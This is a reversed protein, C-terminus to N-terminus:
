KRRSGKRKRSGKKKKSRKKKSAKSRRRRSRRKGGQQEQDLRKIEENLKKMKDEIQSRELVNGITLKNKEIELTKLEEKANELAHANTNFKDTNSFADAAAKKAAAKKAAAKEADENEDGDGDGDGDGNGITELTQNKVDGFPYKTADEPIDDSSLLEDIGGNKVKVAIDTIFFEEKNM